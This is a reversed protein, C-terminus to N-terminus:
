PVFLRMPQIQFGVLPKIASIQGICKGKEFFDKVSERLIGYMGANGSTKKWGPDLPLTQDIRAGDKKRL